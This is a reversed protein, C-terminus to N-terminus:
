RGEVTFFHRSVDLSLGRWGFRPQDAVTCASIKLVPSKDTPLLQILTQVGYFVGAGSGSVSVSAPTVHMTYASEANSWVNNLRIATNAPIKDFVKVTTQFGYNQNLYDQLYKGIPETEKNVGIVANKSLIFSGQGAKLSVPQPIIHFQANITATSLLLFAFLIIYKLSLTKKM